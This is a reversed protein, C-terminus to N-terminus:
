PGPHPTKLSYNRAAGATAVGFHVISTWRELRHHGTRHFLYSFGISAGTGAAEIGAFLPHNDVISNTLFDENIGRRRLNLTSAYDLGRSAGMAAFWLDNTRDWFRHSTRPPAPAAQANNPSQSSDKDAPSPPQQALTANAGIAMLLAICGAPLARARLRLRSEEGGSGAEARSHM